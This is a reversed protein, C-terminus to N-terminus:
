IFFAYPRNMAKTETVTPGVHSGLEMPELFRDSLVDLGLGMRLAFESPLIRQMGATVENVGHLVHFPPEFSFELLPFQEENVIM